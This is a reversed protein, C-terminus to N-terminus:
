PSRVDVVSSARRQIEDDWTYLTLQLTFAVTAYVADAGRLRQDAGIRAATAALSRDLPVMRLRPTREVQAVAQQGLHPIGTRRAIACGIEPLALTPVVLAEGNRLQEKLWDISARHHTDDTILASVWVSADVVV